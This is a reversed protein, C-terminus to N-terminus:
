NARWTLCALGGKMMTGLTDVVGYGVKWWDGDISLMSQWAHCTPSHQLWEVLEFKLKLYHKLIYYVGKILVGKNVVKKQSVLSNHNLYTYDCEM